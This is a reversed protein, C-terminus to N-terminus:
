PHLLITEEHEVQLALIFSARVQLKGQKKDEAQSLLFGEVLALAQSSTEAGCEKVWSGLEPTLIALFQELIVLDLIEAKSHKEPKLWQCCLYLQTCIERPGLTEQYRLNRFDRCPTDLVVNEEKQIEQEM